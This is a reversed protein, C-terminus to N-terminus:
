GQMQREKLLKQYYLIIGAEPERPNFWALAQSTSDVQDDHKGNPFSLLERVYEGLWPADAPLHVVGNEFLVTQGQMRYQKDGDPEVAKVQYMRSSRLEQILQTGSARDEVLVTQAGFTDRHAIAKARLTPFDMRDRLVHLLYLQKDAVGWTTCISYDSGDSLKNATDWSQFVTDFTTPCEGPKYYTFWASKILNGGAPMPDQQYQAAFDAEGMEKKLALLQDLSERAPHLAEGLRRSLAKPGLLTSVAFTEDSTSIAALRIHKFNSRDLLVGSLDDEHLRQMVVIIGGTAKNNLRSVLTRSYWENLNTRSAESYADAAKLPDDIIILDAGRGTLVGGTSTALRFGGAATRIDSSPARVSTLKTKPFLKQYWPSAMIQRCDRGFKESLDQAYSVCIIQAGSNHGLMWAPLAVSCLVSKLHRPPLNILLRRNRGDVVEALESALLELHWNEDLVAGGQLERMCQRTFSLFDRRMISEALAAYGSRPSRRDSM